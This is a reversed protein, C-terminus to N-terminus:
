FEAILGFTHVCECRLGFKGLELLWAKLQHDLLEVPSPTKVESSLEPEDGGIEEDADGASDGDVGSGVGIGRPTRPSLPPPSPLIRSRMGNQQVASGVALGLTEKKLETHAPHQTSYSLM